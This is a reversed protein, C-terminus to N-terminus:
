FFLNLMVDGIKMRLDKNTNGQDDLISLTLLGGLALMAVFEIVIVDVNVKIDPM